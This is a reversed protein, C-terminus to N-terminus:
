PIEWGSVYELEIEARRAAADLMTQRIQAVSASRYADLLELIGREGAEYSVEAIREVQASSAAAARYRDAAARREVVASRLAVIEARVRLSFAEVQAEARSRRAAALARESRGRDFLPIVAQISLVSGVDGGLATSSKTGAIVEPEPIARRGAARVAFGASDIEHRLALWEGRTMEAREILTDVSPLDTARTGAAAAAVLTSPDIPGAFFAALGAQARARESAAAARDAELDLVERESRLRDFGAAEGAAERRGLVDALAQLRDRSRALERERTQTEVLDAFALRLDARARRLEDGSRSTAADVLASAASKEFSRRGTIPLPQAVMTITERIGAVAERDITVRPNPWRGAALVEAEAVGIASRIARVRPSESSLRALADAESLVTQAGVLASGWSLALAVCWLRTRM